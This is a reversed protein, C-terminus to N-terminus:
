TFLVCIFFRGVENNFLSYLHIGHCVVVCMDYQCVNLLRIIGFGSSFVCYLYSIVSSPYAFKYWCKLFHNRFWEVNELRIRIFLIVWRGKSGSTRSKLIYELFEHMYEGWSMVLEEHNGDKHKARHKSTNGRSSNAPWWTKHWYHGKKDELQSSFQASPFECPSLFYKGYLHSKRHEYKKVWTTRKLLSQQVHTIRTGVSRRERSEQVEESTSTRSPALTWNNFYLPLLGWLLPLCLPRVKWSSGM